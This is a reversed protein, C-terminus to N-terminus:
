EATRQRRWQYRNWDYLGQIEYEMGNAFRVVASCDRDSVPAESGDGGGSLSVVQCAVWERQCPGQEQVWEWLGNSVEIRDGVSLPSESDDLYVALHEPEVRDLWQLGYRDRIFQVDGSTSGNLWDNLLLIKWSLPQRKSQLVYQILQRREEPTLEDLPNDRCAKADGALGLQRFVVQCLLQQQAETLGYGMRRCQRFAAQLAANIESQSM